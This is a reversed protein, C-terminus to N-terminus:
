KREDPRARDCLALAAVADTCGNRPQDATPRTPPEVAQVANPTVEDTKVPTTSSETPAVVPPTVVPPTADPPPAVPPTAAPPTAAPTAAAAATSEVHSPSEMAPMFATLASPAVVGSRYAAYAAAVVCLAAIVVFVPIRSRTPAPAPEAAPSERAPLVITETPATILSAGCKHCHNMGRRNVASCAPCLTLQLDAACENCYKASPPNDHGCFSCRGGPTMAKDAM